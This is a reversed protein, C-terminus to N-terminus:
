AAGGTARLSTPEPTRTTPPVGTAADPRRAGDADADADFVTCGGLLFGTM